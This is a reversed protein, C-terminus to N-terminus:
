LQCGPRPRDTRETGKSTSFEIRFLIQFEFVGLPTNQQTHEKSAAGAPLPHRHVAGFHTAPNPLSPNEATKHSIGFWRVTRNPVGRSFSDFPFGSPLVLGPKNSNQQQTENNEIRPELAGAPNLIASVLACAICTRPLLLFFSSRCQRCAALCPTSDRALLPCNATPSSPASRESAHELLRWYWKDAPISEHQRRSHCRCSQPPAPHTSTFFPALPDPGAPNPLAKRHQRGISEDRISRTNAPSIGSHIGSWVFRNTEFGTILRSGSARIVFETPGLHRPSARRV